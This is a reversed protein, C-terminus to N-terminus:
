LDSFLRRNSTKKKRTPKMASYQCLIRCHPMTRWEQTPDTIDQSACWDTSAGRYPNGDLVLSRNTGVTILPRYSPVLLRDVVRSKAFISTRRGEPGIIQAEILHPFARWRTWGAFVKNM